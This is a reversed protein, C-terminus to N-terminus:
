RLAYPPRRFERACSVDLARPALGEVFQKVISAACATGLTSHSGHPFVLHRSNPLNRLASEAWMPPTVPDADGSFALVPVNSKAPTFHDPPLTPKPMAHCARLQQRV